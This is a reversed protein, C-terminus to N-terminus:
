ESSAVSFIRIRMRSSIAMFDNVALLSIWRRLRPWASVMSLSAPSIRFRVTLVSLSSASSDCSFARLESSFRWAPELYIKVLDSHVVLQLGQHSSHWRAESNRFILKRFKTRLIPRHFHLCVLVRVKDEIELYSCGVVLAERLMCSHWMM